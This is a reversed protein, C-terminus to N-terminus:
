AVAAEAVAADQEGSGGSVGVGGVVQGDASFPMGGPSAMFRGSTVVAAGTLFASEGSLAGGLVGTPIKAAAATWAKSIAIEPTMFSTGDMRAFAVLHGAADVVAISVLLGMKEAAKRGRDLIELGQEVTM